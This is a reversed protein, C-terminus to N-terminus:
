VSNGGSLFLMETGLEARVARCLQSVWWGPESVVPLQSSHAEIIACQIDSHLRAQHAGSRQGPALNGADYIACAVVLASVMGMAGCWEVGLGNDCAAHEGLFAALQHGLKELFFSWDLILLFSFPM